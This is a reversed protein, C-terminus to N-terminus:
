KPIILLSHSHLRRLRLVPASLTLVLNQYSLYHVPFNKKADCFILLWGKNPQKKKIVILLLQVLNEDITLERSLHILKSLPM